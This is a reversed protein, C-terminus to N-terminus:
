LTVLKITSLHIKELEYAVYLDPLTELWLLMKLRMDNERSEMFLSSM